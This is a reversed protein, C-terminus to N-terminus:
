KSQKIVEKVQERIQEPVDEISIAGRKIRRVYANIVASM